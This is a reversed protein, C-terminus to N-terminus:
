IFEKLEYSGSMKLEPKYVFANKDDFYGCRFHEMGIGTRKSMMLAYFYIQTAAFKERHANPKYDWIWIKGDEIRLVDVHGTLPKVDKFLEKFNAIENAHLWLPVEVAITNADRELMYSEVRSHASEEDSYKLANKALSNVEHGAISKLDLDSLKFKAMSCRPGGDNFYENPCKDFMDHLYSKLSSFRVLKDIKINHLRYYYSGGPHQLYIQKIM